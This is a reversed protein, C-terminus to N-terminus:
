AVRGRGVFGGEGLIPLPTPTLAIGTKWGELRGGKWDEVEWNGLRGSWWNVV